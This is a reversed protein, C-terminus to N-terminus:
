HIIRPLIPIGPRAPEVLVMGAPIGARQLKQCHDFILRENREDAGVVIELDDGQKRDIRAVLEVGILVAGNESAASLGGERLVVHKKFGIKKFNHAWARLEDQYRHVFYEPITGDFVWRAQGKPKDRNAQAAAKQALIIGPLAASHKAIIEEDLESDPGVTMLLAKTQGHVTLDCRLRVTPWYDASLLNADPRNWLNIELFQGFQQLKAAWGFIEKSYVEIFIEPVKRFNASIPLNDNAGRLRPMSQTLM